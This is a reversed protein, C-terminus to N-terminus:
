VNLNNASIMERIAEGLSSSEMIAGDKIAAAPTPCTVFRFLNLNASTGQLQCMKITNSGIDIAGTDPAKSTLNKIWGFM